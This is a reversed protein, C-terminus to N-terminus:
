SDRHQLMNEYFTSLDPSDWIDRMTIYGGFKYRRWCKHGDIFVPNDGDDGWDTVVLVNDESHFSPPGHKPLQGRSNVARTECEDCVMTMYDSAFDTNDHLRACISCRTPEVKVTWSHRHVM